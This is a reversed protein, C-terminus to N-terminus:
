VSLARQQRAHQKLRRYATSPSIDLSLRAAEVPNKEGAERAAQVEDAVMRPTVGRGKGRPQQGAHRRQAVIQNHGGYILHAAGVIIFDRWAERLAAHAEEPTLNFAPFELWVMIRRAELSLQEAAAIHAPRGRGFGTRDARRWANDLRAQDANLLQPPEEIRKGGKVRIVPPKAPPPLHEQVYAKLPEILLCELTSVAARAGEPHGAMADRVYSCGAELEVPDFLVHWVRTHTSSTPQKSM